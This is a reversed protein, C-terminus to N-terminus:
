MAWQIHLQAIVFVPGKTEELQFNCLSHIRMSLNLILYLCLTLGWKHTGNELGRSCTRLRQINSEFADPEDLADLGHETRGWSGKKHVIRGSNAERQGWETWTSPYVRYRGRHLASCGNLVGSRPNVEELNVRLEDKVTMRMSWVVDWQLLM